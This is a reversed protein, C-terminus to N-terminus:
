GENRPQPAFISPGSCDMSRITAWVPRRETSRRIARERGKVDPNPLHIRVKGKAVLTPDEAKDFRTKCLRLAFVLEFVQCFLSLITHYTM